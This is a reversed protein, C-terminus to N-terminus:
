LFDINKFLVLLSKKILIKAIPIDFFFIELLQEGDLMNIYRVPFQKRDAGYQIIYVIEFCSDNKNM